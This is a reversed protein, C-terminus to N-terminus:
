KQKQKRNQKNQKSYLKNQKKHRNKNLNLQKQLKSKRKIKMGDQFTNPCKERRTMRLTCPEMLQICLNVFKKKSELYKSSKQRCSSGNKLIM